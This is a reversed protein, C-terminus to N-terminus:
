RVRGSRSTPASYGGAQGGGFAGQQGFGGQQQQGFGPRGTGIGTGVGPRGAASTNTMFYRQYNLFSSRHGTAVVGQSLDQNYLDQNIQDQQQLAQQFQQRPMVNTYLNVAPSAGRNLLGLYPSVNPQAIAGPQQAKGQAWAAIPQFSLLFTAVMLGHALIIRKM